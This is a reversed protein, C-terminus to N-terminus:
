MKIGPYGAKMVSCKLTSKEKLCYTGFGAGEGLCCGTRENGGETQARGERQM